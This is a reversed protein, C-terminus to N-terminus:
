DTINSNLFVSNNSNPRYNHRKIKMRNKPSGKYACIRKKWKTISDISKDKQDDISNSHMFSSDNLINDENAFSNLIKIININANSLLSFEDDEKFQGKEKIIEKNLRTQKYLATNNFQKKKKLANKMKLSRNIDLSKMKKRIPHFSSNM